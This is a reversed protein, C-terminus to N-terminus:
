WTRIDGPRQQRVAVSDTLDHIGARGCAGYCEAVLRLCLYGYQIGLMTQGRSSRHVWALEASHM